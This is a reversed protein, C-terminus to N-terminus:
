RESPLSHMIREYSETRWQTASGDGVDPFYNILDSATVNWLGFLKVGPTDIIEGGFSLVYRRASTTTHRGKENFRSVEGIRVDFQPQVARLLSSKGVGSHGAIVTIKDKLLHPLGGVDSQSVSTQVTTIGLKQYHALVEQAFALDAGAADALDVKNLCVIPSLGGAQAAVLMRDVLGWKIAPQALAVVILMQQANAIILDEKGDKIRSLVTQRPLVHEIVAEPLGSEHKKGSARFRVKDGVIVGAGEVKFLTKRVTCLWTQAEHEVEVYLSYVQVVLGVPLLEADAAVVQDEARLNATRVTKNQQHFKSRKGFRQVQDVRDEDMNGSLFRSTLDKERPGKKPRGM